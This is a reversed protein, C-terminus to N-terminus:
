GQAVASQMESSHSEAEDVAQEEPATSVFGKIKPWWFVNWIPGPLMHIGADKRRHFMEHLPLMNAMSDVFQSPDDPDFAHWDFGRATTVMIMFGVLSHEVPFTEGTPQGTETDIV